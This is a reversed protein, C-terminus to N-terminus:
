KGAVLKNVLFKDCVKDEIVCIKYMYCYESTLGYVKLFKIEFRAWKYINNISVLFLYLYEEQRLATAILINIILCALVKQFTNKTTCILSLVIITTNLLDNHKQAVYVSSISLTDMIRLPSIFKALSYFWKAHVLNPSFLLFKHGSSISAIIKIRRKM